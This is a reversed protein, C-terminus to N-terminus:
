NNRIFGWVLIATTITAFLTNLLGLNERDLRARLRTVIITDNPQLYFYPSTVLNPDRLDITIITQKDGDKRMLRIRRDANENLDGAIAIADLISVQETPMLHRNPIRVEGLISVRFSTLKVSVSPEKYYDNVLLLVKNQVEPITLGVVAIKGLTPIFINGDKDVSYGSMYLIMENPQVLPAGGTQLSLQESVRGAADKIQISIIDNPQLRYTNLQTRVTVPTTVDYAPNQIYKLKNIGICSSLGLLSFLFIYIFNRNM